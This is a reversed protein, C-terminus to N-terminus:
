TPEGGIQWDNLQKCVLKAAREVRATEEDDTAYWYFLTAIAQGQPNIIEILDYTGHRDNFQYTYNGIQKTTM